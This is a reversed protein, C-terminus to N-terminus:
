HMWYSEHLWWFSNLYVYITFQDHVQSLLTPLYYYLVTALLKSTTHGYQMTKVVVGVKVCERTLTGWLHPVARATGARYAAVPRYYRSM